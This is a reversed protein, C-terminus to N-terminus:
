FGTGFKPDRGREPASTARRRTRLATITLVGLAGFGSLVLSGPEPVSSAVIGTFTGTGSISIITFNGVSTAYTQSLSSSTSGSLPGISSQLNYNSLAANTVSLIDLSGGLVLGYFGVIQSSYGVAVEFAAVTDTTDITGSGIGAVDVSLGINTSSGQGTSFVNSTDAIATLTILANSFSQSGLSGSGIATETFTVSAARVQSTIALVLGLLVFVMLRSRNFIM